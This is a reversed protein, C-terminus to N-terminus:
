KSSELGSNEYEEHAMISCVSYHYFLPFFAYKELSGIELMEFKESIM